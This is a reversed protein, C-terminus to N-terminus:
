KTYPLVPSYQLCSRSSRQFEPVFWRPFIMLSLVVLKALGKARFSAWALNQAEPCGRVGEEATLLGPAAYLRLFGYMQTLHANKERVMIRSAEKVRTLIEPMCFRMQIRQKSSSVLSASFIIGTDGRHLTNGKNGVLGM